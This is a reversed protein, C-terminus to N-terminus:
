PLFEFSTELDVINTTKIQPNPRNSMQTAAGSISSPKSWKSTLYQQSGLKCCCSILRLTIMSAQLNPVLQPAYNCNSQNRSFDCFTQQFRTNGTRNNSQMDMPIILNSKLWINTSSWQGCQEPGLHDDIDQSQARNPYITQLRKIFQAM